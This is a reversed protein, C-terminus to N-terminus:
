RRAFVCPELQEKVGDFEVSYTLVDEHLTLRNHSRTSDYPLLYLPTFGLYDIIQFHHELEGRGVVRTSTCIQFATVVNNTITDCEEPGNIDEFDTTTYRADPDVLPTLSLNIRGESDTSRELRMETPCGRMGSPGLIGPNGSTLRWDGLMESLGTAEDFPECYSLFGLNCMFGYGWGDAKGREVSDQLAQCDQGLLQGARDLDCGHASAASPQGTCTSIHDAAQQCIDQPNSCGFFLFVSMCIPTAAVRIM